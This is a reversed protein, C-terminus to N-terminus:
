KSVEATKMALAEITRAKAREANARNLEARDASIFEFRGTTANWKATTTTKMFLLYSLTLLQAFM